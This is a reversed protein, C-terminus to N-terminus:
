EGATSLIAYHRLTIWAGYGYGILLMMEVLVNAAAAGMLGFFSIAVLFILLGALAVVAQIKTRLAQADYAVMLTTSCFSMSKLLPVVSMVQLLPVAGMFESGFLTQIIWASGWFALGIWLLGYLTNGVIGSAIIWRLGSTSNKQRAIIPLLVQWAVSPVMFSANILLLAPSHLGAAVTGLLLAVLILDARMTMQALIDSAFYM